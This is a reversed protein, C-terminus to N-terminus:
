LIIKEGRSKSKVLMRDAQIEEEGKGHLLRSGTRALDRPFPRRRFSCSVGASILLGQLPCDGFPWFDGTSRQRSEM